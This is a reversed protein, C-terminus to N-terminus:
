NSRKGDKTWERLSTSKIEIAGAKRLTRLVSAPAIPFHPSDTLTDALWDVNGAATVWLEPKYKSVDFPASFRTLTKKGNELFYEHFYSMALERPSSYVPDRWRLVPYNTKSIAGWRGGQTFLAVVHDFDDEGTELDMLLPKHGHYALAAAALMAGEMCHAKNAKIVERPSMMTHQRKTLVNEPMRDLYDQIKQPTSLQAFVRREAATLIARLKHQYSTM